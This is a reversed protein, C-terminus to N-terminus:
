ARSRLGTLKGEIDFFRIQRFNFLRKYWDAWSDMRGRYVNHTLHDIYQLGAGVPKPDRQGLWVFDADWMSGKDGYRDVFYLLAGGVGEIAPLRLASPQAQTPAPKAGLAVARALAHGADAVRFGM